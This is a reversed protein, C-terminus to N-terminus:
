KQEGAPSILTPVVRRKKKERGEEETESRKTPVVAETEPRKMPPALQAGIGTAAPTEPPTGFGTLSRGQLTPQAFTSTTPSPATGYKSSSSSSRAPSSARVSIPTPFTAGSSASPSPRSLSSAHPPGPHIEGLEGPDFIITSCFGDTSTM